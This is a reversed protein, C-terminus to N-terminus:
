EELNNLIGNHHIGRENAVAIFDHENYAMGQGLFKRQDNEAQMAMCEILGRVIMGYTYVENRNM